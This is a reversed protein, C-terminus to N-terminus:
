ANWYYTIEWVVEQGNLGGMITVAFFFSNPNVALLCIGNGNVM